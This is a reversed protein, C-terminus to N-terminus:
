PRAIRLLTDCELMKGMMAEGADVSKDADEFAVM